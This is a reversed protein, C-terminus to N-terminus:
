AGGGEDARTTQDARASTDNAARQAAREHWWGLIGNPFFVVIVVILAGMAVRQWGLLYIWFVQQTVYFVAAGIVPGWVTGRGGLIPMLIMWVGYTAAAFALDIPDIFGILNGVPGGALGLFFAAVCWAITKYFTTHLGMAEAKDEDDRIANIALGFRRAYLWRVTIFTLM